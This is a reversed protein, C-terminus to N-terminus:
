GGLPFPRRAQRVDGERCNIRRGRRIAPRNCGHANMIKACPQRNGQRCMARRAVRPSLRACTAEARGCARRRRRSWRLVRRAVELLCKRRAWPICRSRRRMAIRMPESGVAPADGVGQGAFCGGCSKWFPMKQSDVTYPPRSPAHCHANAGVGGCARRRRKSWRLCGVCSKWFANKVFGRYVAATVARPLARQRRGQRPRTTQAKVLSPVRRVAELVANEALGRYVAAALRM